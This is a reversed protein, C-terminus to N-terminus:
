NGFVIIGSGAEPQLREMAAEARTWLPPKTTRLHSSIPSFSKLRSSSPSCNAIGWSLCASPWAETCLVTTVSHCFFYVILVSFVLGESRSQSRSCAWATHKRPVQKEAHLLHEQTRQASSDAPNSSEFAEGRGLSHANSLFMPLVVLWKVRGSKRQGTIWIHIHKSTYSSRDVSESSSFCSLRLSRLLIQNREQFEHHLDPKLGFVCFEPIVAHVVVDPRSMKLHTHRM